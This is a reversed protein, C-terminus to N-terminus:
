HADASYSTFLVFARGRSHNLIRVIEESAAAQHVGPQASRAPAAPRLAAGAESLRFPQAGGAHARIQLGLRKQVFEFTGAVALTASTLMVTDVKTSCGSPWSRRSTSRAHGAPLVRARAAGDLVRYSADDSEMVFKLAEALELTRRFLPM